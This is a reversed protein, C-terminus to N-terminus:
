SRPSLEEYAEGHEEDGAEKLTAVGSLLNAWGLEGWCSVKIAHAAQGGEEDEEAVVKVLGENDGLTPACALSIEVKELKRKNTEPVLSGRRHTEEEDYRSIGQGVPGELKHAAAGRAVKCVVDAGQYKTAANAQIQRGGNRCKHYNAQQSDSRVFPCSLKGIVPRVHLVNDFRVWCAHLKRVILVKVPYLVHIPKDMHKVPVLKATAGTLTEDAM